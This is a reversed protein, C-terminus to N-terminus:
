EEFLYGFGQRTVICRSFRGVKRRVRTINVDVTRDLVIVDKRWIRDILQQRSFVKGPESLLLRLIEFETRTFPLDTGDISVAKRNMDLVLGKYEILDPQTQDQGQCTRRLVANVRAMVERLSFPKSIYDDAGINFGTLMDAETDRATIFIVPLNKTAINEKLKKAMSYGSMGGMMVDLLLLDFRGPGKEMAEEASAATEVDYGGAELNFKLIGCLDEEDDVVLIKYRKEM